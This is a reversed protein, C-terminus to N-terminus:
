AKDILRRAAELADALAASETPAYQEANHRPPRDDLVFWWDWRSGVQETHVEIKRDKYHHETM